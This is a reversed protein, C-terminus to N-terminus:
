IHYTYARQREREVVEALTVRGLIAQTAEAVEQWVERLATGRGGRASGPAEDPAWIPGELAAILDALTIETAPRALLHGGGPGRRSAILGAKRLLTLLQNLYPEPIEQREAIDHSQVPGLGAREALDLMARIGYETRTSLRM